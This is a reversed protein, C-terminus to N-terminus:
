LQMRFSLSLFGHGGDSHMVLGVWQWASESVGGEPLMNQIYKETLVHKHAALRSMLHVCVSFQLKIIQGLTSRNSSMIELDCCM